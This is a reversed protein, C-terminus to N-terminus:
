SRQQPTFLLCQSISHICKSNVLLCLPYTFHTSGHEVNHISFSLSIAIVCFIIKFFLFLLLVSLITRAPDSVSTYVNIYNKGLFHSKFGLSPRYLFCCLFYPCFHYLNVHFPFQTIFSDCLVKCSQGKKYPHASICTVQATQVETKM